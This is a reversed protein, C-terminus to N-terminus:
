LVGKQIIATSLVQEKRVEEHNRSRSSLIKEISDHAFRQGHEHNTSVGTIIVNVVVIVVVVIIKRTWIMTFDQKMWYFVNDDMQTIIFCELNATIKM